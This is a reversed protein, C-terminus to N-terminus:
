EDDCEFRRLLIPTHEGAWSGVVNYEFFECAEEFSSGDRDMLVQICMQVDYVGLVPQGCREAMGVLAAEFGDLLLAQPNSAALEDRKEHFSM